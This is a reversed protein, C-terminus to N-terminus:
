IYYKHKCESCILSNEDEDYDFEENPDEKGCEPCIEHDPQNFSAFPSHIGMIYDDLSRQFSNM